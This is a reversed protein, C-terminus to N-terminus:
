FYTDKGIQRLVDAPFLGHFPIATDFYKVNQHIKVM